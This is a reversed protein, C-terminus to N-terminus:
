FEHERIDEGLTLIWSARLSKEVLEIPMKLFIVLPYTL